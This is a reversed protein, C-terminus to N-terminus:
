ETEDDSDNSQVNLGLIPTPLKEGGSTHDFNQQPMGDMYSWVMKQATTDGELAKKMISKGIADKVEPNSNLMEQFWATISYGKKPRGNPNGSQGEKWSAPTPAGKAM